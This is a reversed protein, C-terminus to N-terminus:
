NTKSRAVSPKRMYSQVFFNVFLVLFSSYILCGFTATEYNTECAKGSRKVIIVYINMLLGLVMQAIQSSTILINVKTSVQFRAAKLAYYGYMVFHISYNMGSLYRFTSPMSSFVYWCYTLTTFHHYYHLFILKQKRLVIFATDLLEFAKSLVFLWFWTMIRSDRYLSDNSCISGHLGKSRLTSFTDELLRYAGLGSFCALIASWLILLPRLNFATRSSMLQKGLPVLVIYLLSLHISYIWNRDFWQRHYDIDFKREFPLTFNLPM